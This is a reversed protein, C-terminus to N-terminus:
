IIPAFLQYVAAGHVKGRSAPRAPEAVAEKSGGDGPLDTVPASAPEPLVVPEVAAGDGLDRREDVGLDGLSPALRERHAIGQRGIERLM